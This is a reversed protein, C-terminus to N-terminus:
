DPIATIVIDFDKDSVPADSDISLTGKVKCKEGVDLVCTESWESPKWFWLRMQGFDISTGNGVVVDVEGTNKIYFIPDQTQSAGQEMTGWEVFTCPTQCSPDTYVGLKIEPAPPSPPTVVKVHSDVGLGYIAYAVGGVALVALLSMVIIALRKKM